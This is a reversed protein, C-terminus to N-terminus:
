LQVCLSLFLKCVFRQKTPAAPMSGAEYNYNYHICAHCLDTCTIRLKYILLKYIHCVTYKYM